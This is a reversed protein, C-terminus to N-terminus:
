KKKEVLEMIKKATEPSVSYIDMRVSDGSVTASGGEFYVSTNIRGSERDPDGGLLRVNARLKDDYENRKQLVEDAKKISEALPPLIRRKIDNAIQEATKSEAITISLPKSDWGWVDRRTLPGSYWLNVLIRGKYGYREISASLYANRSSGRITASRMEDSKRGYPEFIELGLSEFAQEIKTVFAHARAARENQERAWREEYTETQM